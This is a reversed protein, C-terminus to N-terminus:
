FHFGIRLALSGVSRKERMVGDITQHTVVEAAAVTNEDLTKQTYDIPHTGLGYYYIGASVHRGFYAGLGLMWSFAINSKYAYYLTGGATGTGKGERTIMLLDAGIAFEGYPTIDNWLEDYLYSVGAMVPINFYTPTAYDQDMYKDRWTGGIMNWFFDAQAFPAVMGVGVDFRYSARYGAGFGLSADKGMEQYGLPVIHNSNISSAFSGTPLNGNLFISQRFQAQATMGMGAMLAALCMLTFTKKM